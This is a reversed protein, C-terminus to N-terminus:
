AYSGAREAADGAARRERRVPVPAAAARCVGLGRAVGALALACSAFVALARATSGGALHSAVAPLRELVFFAANSGAHLTVGAYISRTRCVVVGALVGFALHQPAAWASGHAVAFLTASVAVAWAAGARRELPRQLWARFTFEEVLPAVGV